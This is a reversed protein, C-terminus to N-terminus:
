QNLTRELAARDSRLWGKDDPAAGCQAKFSSLNSEIRMVDQPAMFSVVSRVLNACVSSTIQPSPLIM